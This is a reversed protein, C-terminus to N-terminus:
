KICIFGEFCIYKFVSMVDKFGARKFMDMNGQTSFPELVCKLSKSKGIIEEATYGQELKYDVYLGNAIDQFRADPSRVKEFIILAGGWQLSEYLKNIFYQRQSPHIFQLTYYSIIYDSPMFDHELVNTNLFELNILENATDDKAKQIMQEEIDIGIITSEPHYKALKQSLVGTSCGIEYSISGKYLFYDSYKLVLDHGIDYFPVSKQVHNNFTKATDGGFDWKRTKLSINDGVTLESVGM